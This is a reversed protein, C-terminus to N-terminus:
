KKLFMTQLDISKQIEKTLQEITEPKFGDAIMFKVKTEGSLNKIELVLGSAMYNNEGLKKVLDKAQILNSLTSAKLVEHEILIKQIKTQKKM